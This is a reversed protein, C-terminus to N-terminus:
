AQYRADAFNGYLAESSNFFDKLQKQTVVVVTPSVIPIKPLDTLVIQQFEDYWAKRKLPDVESQGLDLLEDM